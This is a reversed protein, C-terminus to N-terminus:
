IFRVFQVFSNNKPDTIKMFKNKPDSKEQYKNKPYGLFQRPRAGTMYMKSYVGQTCYAIEESYDYKCTQYIERHATQQLRSKCIVGEVSFKWAKVFQSPRYWPTSSLASQLDDYSQSNCSLALMCTLLWSDGEIGWLFLIIVFVIVSKAKANILAIGMIILKIVIAQLRLLLFCYKDEPALITKVPQINRFRSLYM